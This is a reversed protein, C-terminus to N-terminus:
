SDWFDIQRPHSLWQLMEKEKRAGVFTFLYIFKFDTQTWLELDIDGTWKELVRDDITIMETAAQSVVALWSPQTLLLQTIADPVAECGLLCSTHPCSMEGRRAACLIGLLKKGHWHLQTQSLASFSTNCYGQRRHCLPFLEEHHMCSCCDHWTKTTVMHPSPEGKSGCGQLPEDHKPGFHEIRSRLPSGLLIALNLTVLSYWTWGVSNKKGSRSLLTHFVTFVSNRYM